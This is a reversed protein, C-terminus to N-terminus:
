LQKIAKKVAKELEDGRLDKAIIKGGPGILFTAPISSVAYKNSLENDWGKGDFYQPWDMGNEKIFTELKSRDKDLSIGIIEFGKDHYEQYVDLVHPLEAICPPCWTAWFDILVVKGQYDSLSVSEKELDEFSFGPFEAGIVLSELMDIRAVLDAGKAAMETGAFDKALREYETRAAPLDDLVNQYIMGKFALVSFREEPLSADIKEYLADLKQLHPAYAAADTNGSRYLGIIADRAQKVQDAPAIAEGAEATAKTEALLPLCAGGILLVALTIIKQM